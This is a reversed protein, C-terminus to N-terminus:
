NVEARKGRLRLDRPGLSGSVLSLRSKVRPFYNSSFAPCVRPFYTVVGKDGDNLM